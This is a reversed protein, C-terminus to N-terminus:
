MGRPAIFLTREAAESSASVIKFNDGIAFAQAQTVPVWQSLVPTLTIANLAIWGGAGDPLQFSITAGTFAAEFLIAGPRLGRLAVEGSTTTSISITATKYPHVTM